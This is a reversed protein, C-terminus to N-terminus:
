SGVVAVAVMALQLEGPLLALQFCAAPVLVAGALAEVLCLVHPLAAAFALCLLCPCVPAAAGLLCMMCHVIAVLVLAIHGAAAACAEVSHMTDYHFCAALAPGTVLCPLQCGNAFVMHCGAVPLAFHHGLLLVLAVFQHGLAIGAMLCHPPCGPVAQTVAEHCGAAPLAFHHGLLVPMALPVAFAVAAVLSHSQCGPGLCGAVVQEFHHGLQVALAPGAMLCHPSCGLVAEHCGAVPLAFHCGLLLVPLALPVAFAAAAVLSHSQCGPELSGALVLECHGWQVALAAGAMLCHPPCEPVAQTVAEHCGAVPLAFHHGLLVPMALPVAFAVAAVLSHSQCGPGLCGAVQEFHHGLQVALAPGAVLCHPSRGLVAEHCGAVFLAFHCGLLLVPLAIPVAFAPPQCGHAAVAFHQDILVALAPGPCGAAVLLPLTPHM